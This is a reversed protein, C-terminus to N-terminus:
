NHSKVSMTVNITSNNNFYQFYYIAPIAPLGSLVYPDNGGFMGCDEGNSGAGIAPSGAKLQYRGDSSYGTCSSWCVFVDSMSVNLQNNNGAPLQTGSCLNNATMTTTLTCSGGTLINNFCQVNNLTMGSTIV